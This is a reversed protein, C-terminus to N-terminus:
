GKDDFSVGSSRALFRRTEIKSILWYFYIRLQNPITRNISLTLILQEDSLCLLRGLPLFNEVRHYCM